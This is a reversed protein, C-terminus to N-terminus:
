IGLAKEIKLLRDKLEKNAKRLANIEEKQDTSNINLNNNKNILTQIKKEQEITYIFLEELKELNQETARNILIGGNEQVDQASFVGPLHKNRRTFDEVEELSMIKYEPNLDSYGDFYSEFVYDPTITGSALINGIVQLSQTPATTGIGVAPLANGRNTVTMAYLTPAGTAADNPQDHIVFDIANGGTGTANHRTRIDHRFSNTANFAMSLQTAGGTLGGSGGGSRLKADGNIDLTAEPTTENIGINNGVMFIDSSGGSNSSSINTRTAGLDLNFLAGDYRMNLTNNFDSVDFFINNSNADDAGSIMTLTTRNNFNNSQNLAIFGRNTADQGVVLTSSNNGDGNGVRVDPTFRSGNVTTGVTLPANPNANAIGVNGNSSVRMREPLAGIASAPGGAFVLNAANGGADERFINWTYSAGSNQFGIGNSATNDPTRITLAENNTNNITVNGMRNINSVVDEGTVGWADGDVNLGGGAAVIQAATRQRLLGNAAATVVVDAAAGTALTRVRANGNVDLNATPAITQIGLRKDGTASVNFLTMSADDTAGAGTFFNLSGAELGFGFFQTTNNFLSLKRGTSNGLDLLFNPNATGIGVNGTPAVITMPIFSNAGSSDTLDGPTSDLTFNIRTPSAQSASNNGGLFLTNAAATNVMNIAQVPPNDNLFQPTKLTGIKNTSDLNNSSFTIGTTSGGEALGGIVNLTSINAAEASPAINVKTTIRDGLIIQRNTAAPITGNSNYINDNSVGAAAVIQAATRQRLNGNADTTVIGDAAIGAPLTRIRANGDIDLDGGNLIQVDGFVSVKRGNGSVTQTGVINLGEAFSGSGIKGDDGNFANTHPFQITQEDQVTTMNGDVTLSQTPTTTGIGVNGNDGEIWLDPSGPNANFWLDNTGGTFMTLSNPFNAAPASSNRYQIFGELTAGDDESFAIRPGTGGQGLNIQNLGDTNVTLKQSPNATGIGVNGGNTIRMREPLNNPDTETGGGAFILNATSSGNNERFINWTYAAGSNQFALGTANLNDVSRLTLAQKNDNNITVNGTRSVDSAIDEGTVGWADGDALSATAIIQWVTGDFYYYGPINVNITQGSPASDPLTVYVLTGVQDAGYATKARLQDGTIRPILLGDADSTITPNGVIDLSTAPTTTNIGVQANATIFSFIILISFCRM